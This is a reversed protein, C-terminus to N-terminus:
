SSEKEAIVFNTMGLFFRFNFLNLIPLLFAPTKNPTLLGYSFSDIIKLGNQRAIEHTYKLSFRLAKREEPVILAFLFKLPNNRNPELLVVYKRSVRKMERVIKNVNEVHHLLARCFVIDFSNDNFKLDTADMLATNKVPNM